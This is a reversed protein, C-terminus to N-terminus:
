GQLKNLVFEKNRRLRRILKMMLDSEYTKDLEITYYLRNSPTIKYDVVLFRNLGTNDQIINSVIRNCRKKQSLKKAQIKSIKLRGKKIKLEKILSSLTIGNSLKKLFGSAAPDNKSLLNISEVLQINYSAEANTVMEDALIDKLTSEDGDKTNYNYDLSLTHNSVKYPDSNIPRRKKALKSNRLNRICNQFFTYLCTNFSGRSKNYKLVAKSFYYTLEGYMDDSDDSLYYYKRAWVKLTPVREEYIREFIKVDGTKQFRVVDKDEKNRDIKFAEREEDSWSPTMFDEYNNDGTVVSDSQKIWIDTCFDNGM